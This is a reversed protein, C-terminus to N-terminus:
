LATVYSSYPIERAIMQIPFMYVKASILNCNTPMMDEECITEESPHREKTLQHKQDQSQNSQEAAYQQQPNYQTKNYLSTHDPPASYQYQYHPYDYGTTLTQPPLMNPLYYPNSNQNPYFYNPNHQPVMPQTNYDINSNPYRSMMPYLSGPQYMNNHLQPYYYQDYPDNNMIQYNPPKYQMYTPAHYQMLPTPYSYTDQNPPLHPYKSPRTRHTPSSYYEVDWYNDIPETLINVKAKNDSQETHVSRRANPTSPTSRYQSNETPQFQKKQSNTARPLEPSNPSSKIQSASIPSDQHIFNTLPEDAGLSGSKLLYKKKTSSDSSGGCHGSETLVRSRQTSEELYDPEDLPTCALTEGGSDGSESLSLGMRATEEDMSDISEDTTCGGQSRM